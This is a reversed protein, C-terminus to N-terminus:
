EIKQFAIHKKKNKIAEIIENYKQNSLVPKYYQTVTVLLYYLNSIIEFHQQKEISEKMWPKNIDIYKNGFNIIDFTKLLAQSIEFKSWQTEIEEIQKDIAFLFETTPAVCKVNYKDVLHLVRSLLNGFGNALDNNYLEILDKESWNSDNYTNLGKLIYYRVADIGYKKIQDVPDIVNGISKSMKNGKEDLITGHVLVHNSFKNSNALLIGQWILAQFKLNDPGCLQITTRVNNWDYERCAFIYNLLAEFWVYITQTKDNPVEVGWPLLDRRRSISIDEANKILNILENRKSFPKLFDESDEVYKLIDKSFRKLELFWNEEAIEQLELSQHTPCKSNILVSETKFEECGICYKGVYSKKYIYKKELLDLWYKKVRQHHVTDSTRYFSDQEIEFLNIFNMWKVAIDDVFDQTLMKAEQAAQHIKLGHEDLGINFIVDNKRKFHKSLADGQVFELCHGVHPTSNAYPLTTTIFIKDKM